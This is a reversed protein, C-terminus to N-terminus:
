PSPGAVPPPAVSGRPAALAKSPPKPALAPRASSTPVAVADPARLSRLFLAVVAFVVLAGVLVLSVRRTGPTASPEAHGPENASPAPEGLCAGLAEAFALCSPYREEPRAATARALVGDVSRPLGLEPALPDPGSTAIRSAVSVADEGPFARRGSLAEYVTAALSFQDSAPSFGGGRFTEPASYAPTGLLGGQHTLTSDPVKAIGFDALKAGHRALIVNEPKVDRHVIGATHATTLAEGLEQVLRRVAPLPLPGGAVKEKLTPGPVFEFVLFLGTAPDEGMDHLTVLNPHAVRAAARAEHRMRILLAQRHEPPLRLDLRLHKIAVERELIPDRALLVRGMSGRGILRVIEYRGVTAPLEAM